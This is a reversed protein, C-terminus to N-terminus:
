QPPPDQPLLDPDDWPTKRLGRLGAFPDENPEYNPIYEDINTINLAIVDGYLYRIFAVMLDMGAQVGSSSWIQASGPKSEDIVWRARSVWHVKPFKPTLDNFARKNITAKREDILGTLAVILSGTCVTLLYKFTKQAYIEQVFKIIHDEPKFVRTGRGGPIILVEIKIEPNHLIDDFSHTAIIKEEVAPPKELTPVKTSVPGSNEAIIYLNINKVRALENLFDIPGGVDLLQFGPFLLLGYTSPPDGKALPALAAM